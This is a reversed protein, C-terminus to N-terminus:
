ERPVGDGAAPVMLLLREAAAAFRLAPQAQLLAPDQAAAVFANALANLNANGATFKELTRSRGRRIQVSRLTDTVDVLVDGALLYTANEFVGKTTDDLTFFDGVGNAALDFAIQARM